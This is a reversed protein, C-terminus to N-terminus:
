KGDAIRIKQYFTCICCHFLPPFVLQPKLPWINATFRQGSEFSAGPAMNQLSRKFHTCHIASGTVKRMRFTVKNLFAVRSWIFPNWSLINCAAMGSCLYRNVSLTSTDNWPAEEFQGEQPVYWQQGKCKLVPIYKLTMWENPNSLFLIWLIFLLHSGHLLSLVERRVAVHMASTIPGAPIGECYLGDCIVSKMGFINILLMWHVTSSWLLM